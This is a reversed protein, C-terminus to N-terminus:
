RWVADIVAAIGFAMLSVQLAVAIDAAVAHRLLWSPEKRRLSRYLYLALGLGAALIALAVILESYTSAFV